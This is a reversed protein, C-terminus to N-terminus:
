CSAFQQMAKNKDSAKDYLDLCKSIASSTGPAANLGKTCTDGKCDKICANCISNCADKFKGLSPDQKIVCCCMNQCKGSLEGLRPSSCFSNQQLYRLLNREASASAVLAALLCVAVFTAKM